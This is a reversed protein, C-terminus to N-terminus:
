VNGREVCIIPLRTFGVLHMTLHLRRRVVVLLGASHLRTVLAAFAMGMYAVWVVMSLHDLVHLQLLGVALWGVGLLILVPASHQKDARCFRRVTAWYYLFYWDAWFSDLVALFARARCQQALEAAIASM